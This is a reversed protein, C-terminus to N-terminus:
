NLQSSDLSAEGDGDVAGAGRARLEAIRTAIETDALETLTRNNINVTSEQAPKGDLRDAVHQVAWADGAIACDVLKAAISVLNRRKTRPDTENLAARLADTFPKESPRGAPNGSVGKIWNPNAM